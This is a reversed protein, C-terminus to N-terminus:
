KLYCHIRFRVLYSKWDKNTHKHLFVVYIIYKTNRVYYKTIATNKEINVNNRRQCRM